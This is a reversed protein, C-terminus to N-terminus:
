RRPALRVEEDLPGADDLAVVLQRLCSVVTERRDEPLRDLLERQLAERRQRSATWCRRSGQPTLSVQTERGDAPSATRIALGADSLRDVLRSTSSRHSGLASALETMSRARVQLVRLARLQTLTLDSGRVDLADSTARDMARALALLLAVPEATRALETVTSAIAAGGSDLDDTM